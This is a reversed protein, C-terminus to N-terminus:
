DDPGTYRGIVTKHRPSGTPTPSRWREPRLTVNSSRINSTTSRASRRGERSRFIRPSQALRIVFPSDHGANVYVLMGSTLDLIGAFVTVFMMNTGGAGLEESAASIKDNAENFVRDLANRYRLTATHLVEKTMAMFLAAPIGKGSM